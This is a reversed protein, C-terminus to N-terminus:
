SLLKQFLLERLHATRAAFHARVLQDSVAVRVEDESLRSDGKVIIANGAAQFILPALIVNLRHCVEDAVGLDSDSIHVEM